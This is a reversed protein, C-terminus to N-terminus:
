FTNQLLPDREGRCPADESQPHLFPRRYPPYSCIFQILQRTCGVQPPGAAQPNPSTSVVGGRPFGNLYFECPSISGRSVFCDPPLSSGWVSRRPPTNRSSTGRLLCRFLPLQSPIPVPPPCKNTCHHAKPNWSHPSNRSQSWFWNAEWSPSQEMSYILLYIKCYTSHMEKVRFTSWHYVTRFVCISCLM